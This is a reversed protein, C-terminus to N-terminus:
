VTLEMLASFIEIKNMVTNELVSYTTLVNTSSPLFIQMYNAKPEWPDLRGLCLIYVRPRFSLNLVM